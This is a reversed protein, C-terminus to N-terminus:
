ANELASRIAPAAVGLVGVNSFTKESATSKTAYVSCGTLVSGASKTDACPPVIYKPMDCDGSTSPLAVATDSHRRVFVADSSVAVGSRERDSVDTSVPSYM